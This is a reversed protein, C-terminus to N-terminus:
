AQLRVHPPPIKETNKTTRRSHPRQGRARLLGAANAPDAHEHGVKIRLRANFREFGRPRCQTPDFAAVNMGIIVKGSAIWVAESRVSGREDGRRGFDNKDCACRDQGRHPLGRLRNWRYKNSDGIGLACANDGAEASRSAVERTERIELRRDSAFPQLRELLNCSMHRADRHKAIRISQLSDHRGDLGQRGSKPTSAKSHLARLASSIARTRPETAPRGFVPKIM